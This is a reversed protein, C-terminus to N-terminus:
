VRVVARGYVVHVADSARQGAGGQLAELQTSAPLDPCLFNM